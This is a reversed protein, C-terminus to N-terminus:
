FSLDRAKQFSLHSGFTSAVMEDIQEKLSLLKTTFSVPDKRIEENNVVANGEQMIYPNMKAIIFRLTEERRLFVGFMEKLQDLKGENFMYDCGTEKLTLAEAQNKLCEDM